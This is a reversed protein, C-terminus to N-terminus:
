KKDGIFMELAKKYINKDLNNDFGSKYGVYPYVSSNYHEFLDTLRGHPANIDFISSDVDLPMDWLDNLSTYELYNEFNGIFLQDGSFPLARNSDIVTIGNMALSLTKKLDLDNIIVDPRVKIIIDPRSKKSYMSLLLSSTQKNMWVMKLMNISTSQSEKDSSFTKLNEMKESNSVEFLNEDFFFIDDAQYKKLLTNKNNSLDEKSLVKNLEELYEDTKINFTNIQRKIELPLRQYFFESSKEHSSPLRIGKKEWTFLSVRSPSLQNILKLVSKPANELGRIQGSIILHIKLDNIDIIKTNKSKKFGRFFPLFRKVLKQNNLESLDDENLNDFIELIENKIIEPNSIYERGLERIRKSSIKM